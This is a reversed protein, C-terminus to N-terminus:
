ADAVPIPKTDPIAEPADAPEGVREKPDAVPIPRTSPVPERSGAQQEPAHVLDALVVTVNDPAGADLSLEILRDAAAELDTLDLAARVEDIEVYDTLGDSCLLYRDGHLRTLTTFRPTVAKGNVAQLVVNRYPNHQAQESTIDGNEVMMQVFSDDNTLQTLKGTERQYLYARSDGVNAVAIRREGFLIATVTTGMGRLSPDDEIRHAIEESSADIAQTLPITLDEPWAAADLHAFVEATISSAVEGAAHGGMGDAVLLVRPGVFYSDENNDRQLGAHTRAVTRLQYPM